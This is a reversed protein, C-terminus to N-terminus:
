ALKTLGRAVEALLDSLPANHDYQLIQKGILALRREFPPAVEPDLLPSNLPPDLDVSQFEFALSMRPSKARGSSRSGWHLIHQNWGLVTGTVAPLARISQLDSVEIRRLDGRYHADRTGPLVYVCGNEPTADTLAIWLTLSRPLGDPRLTHVARDRHPRWGASDMSPKVNWAWFDPLQRYGAGLTALLVPRLRAFLAWAEDYVYVFPPPFNARELASIARALRSVEEEPILADIRLYGEAVLGAVAHELREGPDFPPATHKEHIHLEPDLELWSAIRKARDLLQEARPM